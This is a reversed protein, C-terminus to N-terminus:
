KLGEITQVLSDVTAKVEFDVNSSEYKEQFLAKSSKVENIIREKYFDFNVMDKKNLLIDFAAESIIMERALYENMDETKM